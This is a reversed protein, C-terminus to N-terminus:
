WKIRHKKGDKSLAWDRAESTTEFTEGPIMESLAWRIHPYAAEWEYWLRRRDAASLVPLNSKGAPPNTNKPEDLKEALLKFTDKAKIYGFYRAAARHPEKTDRKFYKVAAKRAPKKDYGLVGLGVLATAIVADRDESGIASVLKPGAKKSQQRAVVVVAAIAVQENKHKILKSAAKYIEAHDWDGLATVVQVREADDAAAKLKNRFQAVRKKAVAPDKIAVGPDGIEVDAPGKAAEDKAGKENQAAVVSAFLFLVTLVRM